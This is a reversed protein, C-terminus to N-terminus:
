WHLGCSIVRLVFIARLLVVPCGFRASGPPSIAATAWMRWSTPLGVASVLLTPVQRPQMNGSAEGHSMFGVKAALESAWRWHHRHGRYAGRRRARGNDVVAGRSPRGRPARGLSLFLHNYPCTTQRSPLCRSDQYGYESRTANYNLLIAKKDIVCNRVHTECPLM